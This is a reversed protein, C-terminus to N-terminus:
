DARDGNRIGIVQNGNIADTDLRLLIEGIGAGSTIELNTLEVSQDSVITLANEDIPDVPFAWAGEEFTNTVIVSRDVVDNDIFNVIWSAVPNGAADFALRSGSVIVENTDGTDPTDLIPEEGSGIETPGSFVGDSFIPDEPEQPPPPADYMFAQVFSQANPAGAMGMAGPDEVVIFADRTTEDIIVSVATPNGGFFFLSEDELTALTPDEGEALARARVERVGGMAAVVTDQEWVLIADGSTEDITVLVGEVDTQDFDLAVPESWSNTGPDFRSFVAEDEDVAAGNVELDDDVINQEYLVIANGAADLDGSLGEVVVNSTTNVMQTEWEAAVPDYFSAWVDADDPVAPAMGGMGAPPVTPGEVWVALAEGTSTVSLTSLLATGVPAMADVPAPAAWTTADPDFVSFQLDNDQEWTAIFAGDDGSGVNPTLPAGTGGDIQGLAIWECGVVDFFAALVDGDQIWVAMARDAGDSALAIDTANVPPADEDVQQEQNWDFATFFEYEAGIVNGGGLGAIDGTPSVAIDRGAPLCRESAFTATVDDAALTVTGAFDANDASGGDRVTLSTDDLTGALLPQDFVLEIESVVDVSREGEVPSSPTFSFDGVAPMPMTTFLFEENAVGDNLQNALVDTIETTLTVAYQTDFALLGDPDFVATYVITGDNAMSMVFSVAGAVAAGGVEMVTFSTDNLTNVDLAESFEVEINEMVSAVSIGANPLTTVIEPPDIEQTSFSSTGGNEDSPTFLSESDFANGDNDAISGTVQIQYLQSPDLDASPTFTATFNGSDYSVSGPVLEAEDGGNIALRITDTNVSDEDLQESFTISVVTDVPQNEAGDIPFFGNSVISPGSLDSTGDGGCAFLFAAMAALLMFSRTKRILGNSAHFNNKRM